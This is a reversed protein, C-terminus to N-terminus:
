FLLAVSPATVVNWDLLVHREHIMFGNDTKQLRDQRQYPYLHNDHGHRSFSMLTNSYVRYHEGEEYVEINSVFRRTRAPPNDAWASLKFSRTARIMLTLYSDDRLPAEIGQNLEQGVNLVSETERLKPDLMPTHRVPVTYRIDQALLAMWQQYQRDDLWRAERYYFQEIASLLALDSSPASM